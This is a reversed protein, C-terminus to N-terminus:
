GDLLALLCFAIMITSLPNSSQVLHLLALPHMKGLAATVAVVAIARCRSTEGFRRKVVAM